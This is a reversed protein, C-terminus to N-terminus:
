SSSAIEFYFMSKSLSIEVHMCFNLVSIFKVLPKKTFTNYFNNMLTYKFVKKFCIEM